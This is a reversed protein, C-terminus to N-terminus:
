AAVWLVEWIRVLMVSYGRGIGSPLLPPVGVPNGSSDSAPETGVGAWPTVAVGLPV